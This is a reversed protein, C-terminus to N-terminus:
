RPSADKRPVMLIYEIENGRREYNARVWNSVKPATVQISRSPRRDFPIVPWIVLAPPSQKLRELFALEEARNAFTGPMILDQYGPGMRESLVHLLPSPTLNLITDGPDTWSRIAEVKSEFMRWVSLEAVATAGEEVSHLPMTGRFARSFFLESGMLFIWIGLFACALILPVWGRHKGPLTLRLRGWGLLAYGLYAWLLCIPPLASYLHPEDSRGFSRSFFVGGWIVTALLLPHEFDRKERLARLWGAGLWAAFGLYFVIYLRFQVSTFLSAIQWRSWSPFNFGPMPLAQLRTMEVPRVVVESWLTELGVTQGFWLLTPILVLLM